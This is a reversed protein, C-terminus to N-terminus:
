VRADDVVPIIAMRHFDRVVAASRRIHLWSSLCVWPEYNATGGPEPMAATEDRNGRVKDDRIGKLPSPGAIAVSQM